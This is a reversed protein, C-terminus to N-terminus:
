ESRKLQLLCFRNFEEENVPTTQEDVMQQILKNNKLDITLLGDKLVMNSLESWHFTKKPLSPYVIQETDVVLLKRRISLFFLVSLLLIIIAPLYLSLRIWVFALIIYAGAYVHNKKKRPDFAVIMLCLFVFGSFIFTQTESLRTQTFFVVYFFSLSSVLIIFLNLRYYLKLKDNKLLLEFKLM